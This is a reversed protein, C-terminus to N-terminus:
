ESDFEVYYPKQLNEDLPRPLRKLQLTKVEEAVALVDPLPREDREQAVSMIKRTRLSNKEIRRQNLDSMESIKKKYYRPINTLHGNVLVRNGSRLVDDAFDTCWNEGIGRSYRAFEPHKTYVVSGSDDVVGGYYALADDGNVKKLCYRAVYAISEFTVGGINSFGYPWLRSLTVSVYSQFGSQTLKFPQRDPFDYGYIIAHYHPRGLNDGYEGCAIYKIKVPSIEKRLRKWFLTLHEPVLSGNEPLNEENYTLTIFCATEHYKLEHVGRVAWQRSRELRCGICKGCPVDVYQDVFGARADFTYLYKGSPGREQTRYMRMPHYCPM